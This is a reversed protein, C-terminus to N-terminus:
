FTDLEEKKFNGGVIRVPPRFENPIHQFDLVHNYGESLATSLPRKKGKTGCVLCEFRYMRYLGKSSHILPVRSEREDETLDAESMLRLGLVDRYKKALNKAQEIQEKTYIDEPNYNM